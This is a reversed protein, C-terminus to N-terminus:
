KLTDRYKFDLILKKKGQLMLDYFFSLFYPEFRKLFYM